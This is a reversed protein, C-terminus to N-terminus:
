ARGRGRGGEEGKGEEKGSKGEEKRLRGRM